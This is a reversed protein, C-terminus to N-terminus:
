RVFPVSLCVSVCVSLRVRGFASAAANAAPQLRHDFHTLFVAVRLLLEVWQFIVSSCCTQLCYRGRGFVSVDYVCNVLGIRVVMSSRYVVFVLSRAWLTTKVPFYIFTVPRLIIYAYLLTDILKVCHRSWPFVFGWLPRPGLKSSVGARMQVKGLSIFDVKNSNLSIFVCLLRYIFVVAHTAKILLRQKQQKRDCYGLFHKKWLGPYQIFDRM